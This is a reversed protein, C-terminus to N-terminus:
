SWFTIIDYITNAINVLTQIVGRIFDYIAMFCAGIPHLDGNYVSTGIADVLWFLIIAPIFKFSMVVANWAIALIGTLWSFWSAFNNLWDKLWQPLIKGLANQLDSLFGWIDHQLSEGTSPLTPTYPTNQHFQDTMGVYIYGSGYHRVTQTLTINVMSASVPIGRVGHEDALFHTWHRYSGVVHNLQVYFRSNNFYIELEVWEPQSGIVYEKTGGSVLSGNASMGVRYVNKYILGWLYQYSVFNVWVDIVTSEVQFHLNYELTKGGAEYWWVTRFNSMEYAQYEAHYGTFNEVTIQWSMNGSNDGSVTKWVTRECVQWSGYPDQLPIWDAFASPMSFMFILFFIFLIRINRKM